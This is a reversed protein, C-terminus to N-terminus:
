LCHSPPSEPLMGMARRRKRGLEYVYHKVTSFGDQWCLLSLFMRLISFWPALLFRPEQHSKLLQLLSPQGGKLEQSFCIGIRYLEQLRTETKCANLHLAQSVCEANWNNENKLVLFFGLYLVKVICFGGRGLRSFVIWEVIVYTETFITLQYAVLM